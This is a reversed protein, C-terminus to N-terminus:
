INRPGHMTKIRMATMNVIITRKGPFFRQLVDLPRCLLSQVLMLPKKVELHHLKKKTGHHPPLTNTLRPLEKKTVGAIQSFKM